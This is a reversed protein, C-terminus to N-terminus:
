NLTVLTKPTTTTETLTGAFHPPLLDSVTKVRTLELIAMFAKKDHISLQRIMFWVRNRVHPDEALPVIYRGYMMALMWLKRRTKWSMKVHGNMRMWIDKLDKLFKRDAPTTVLSFVNVLLAHLHCAVIFENEEMVATKSQSPEM